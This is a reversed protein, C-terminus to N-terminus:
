SVRNAKSMKEEAKDPEAPARRPFRDSAKQSETNAGPKVESREDEEERSPM